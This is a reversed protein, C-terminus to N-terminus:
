LHIVVYLSKKELSCLLSCNHNYIPTSIRRCFIYRFYCVHERSTSIIFVSSSSSSSASSVVCTALCVCVCTCISRNLIRWEAERSTALLNCIPLYEYKIEIIHRIMKREPLERHLMWVCDPPSECANTHSLLIYICIGIPNYTYYINNNSTKNGNDFTQWRPRLSCSIRKKSESEKKTRHNSGTIRNPSRWQQM